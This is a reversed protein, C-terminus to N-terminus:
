GLFISRTTLVGLFETGEMWKKDAQFIRPKLESYTVLWFLVWYGLYGKVSSNLFSRYIKGHLSGKQEKKWHFM